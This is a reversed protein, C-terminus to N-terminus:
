TASQLSLEVNVAEEEIFTIQPFHSRLSHQYMARNKGYSNDHLTCPTGVLAAGIAVHLRDTEISETTRICELFAWTALRATEPWVGYEFIASIDADTHPHHGSAENDRRFFRAGKRIPTTGWDINNFELRELFFAQTQADYAESLFADADLHFAMDHAIFVSAKRTHNLVHQYSPVDRCFVVCREDLLSLAHEQGAISHPLMILRKARHAFRDIAIAMEDYLPILNGGGGLIVTQGAVDDDLTIMRHHINLDRFSSYTGSAILSDGANGPCKYHLVEKNRYESLFERVGGTLSQPVKSM